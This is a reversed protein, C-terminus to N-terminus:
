PRHEATTDGTVPLPTADDPSYGHPFVWRRFGWFRFAMALLLGIVSGATFDAVEQVLLSVHPIELDLVYRSILLPILNIVIAVGSILFFLAAEHHRERGGRTRFSWERNLVYSVITAVLIAIGKATTPKETLITLKLLYWVGNDVLFTTGGVFGFKVLEKHRVLVPRLAPPM